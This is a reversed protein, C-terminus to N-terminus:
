VELIKQFGFLSPSFFLVFPYLLNRISYPTIVMSPVFFVFNCFNTKKEPIRAFPVLYHPYFLSDIKFPRVNKYQVPFGVRTGPGKIHFSINGLTFTLMFTEFHRKSFSAVPCHNLGVQLYKSDKNSRSTHSRECQGM